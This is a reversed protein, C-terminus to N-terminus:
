SRPFTVGGAEEHLREASEWPAVRLVRGSVDFEEFLGTAMLSQDLSADLRTIATRPDTGRLRARLTVVNYPHSSVTFSLDSAANGMAASMAAALAERTDSPLNGGTYTIEILACYQRGRVTVAGEFVV